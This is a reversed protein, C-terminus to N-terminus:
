SPTLETEVRHAAKLIQAAREINAVDQTGGEASSRLEALLRDELEELLNNAAALGHEDLYKSHEPLTKKVLEIVSETKMYNTKLGTQLLKSQMVAYMVISRYASFFAWAMPTVFPRASNAADASPKLAEVNCDFTEFFKRVQPDNAAVEIVADFKFKAMWTATSRAPALAAFAGWLQDVAELRRKDLASQRSSLASLAGTRLFDLQKEKARLDAQFLAERERFDNQIAALRVDFDHQVSRTLYAGVKEKYHWLVFSWVAAVVTSPIWDGLSM